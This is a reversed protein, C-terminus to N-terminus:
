KDYPKDMFERAQSHSSQYDDLKLVKEYQEKALGRKGLRDYIQGVRLNAMSMFGSSYKKDLLRCLEDCRYFHQLAKEDQHYQMDVLGLYYESEREASKTYGFQNRKSRDFVDSFVHRINDWEGLSTYVRGLYREFIPNNPFRKCLSQAIPLAERPNKEYTQYSQLLFFAAEYKAYAAKEMAEHLQHLGRQRNGKPFFIMIPKVIPYQEPVVEAYYNYIGIGLLIDYNQPSLSYAKQVIPMAVRGDNAAKLWDGRNAYLRGRFGIAGGKFFLAVIDDENKDLRKDCIDVVNDLMTVLEQDHSEDEMDILIKWWEVMALFFHGAPNDPHRAIALRFETRASDLAMNYVHQIGRHINSEFVSDGGLWQPRAATPANLLVIAALTILIGRPIVM